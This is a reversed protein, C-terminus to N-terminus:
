PGSSCRSEGKGAAWTIAQELLQVYHPESYTEPRHGIASYFSRGNGICHTWAIPHDGMRLDQNGMGKPSYSSEDLTAIIQAGSSRPSTKFSYWEDNMTWGPALGQGIPGKGEVVIRADQFQPALPHGIFRAGLLTDVYWDWFYAPDGGSGHFGVFGGGHEIYSKFASRQTLTLVDGSVNNWIVADFKKLIAPTIAGGKDTVVLAWGKRQAMARLASSAAEVSPGDRFGTMKEFLLLRPKGKPIDLQPVEIDYRACRANRDADTVVLKALADNVPALADEPIRKFSAAIRLTIISAFSPPTTGAFQPPLNQLLNPVVGDVAAKAEPKLLVDILPSDISYPADRLPCDITERASVAPAFVLQSTLAACTLAVALLGPKKDTFPHQLTVSIRSNSGVKVM